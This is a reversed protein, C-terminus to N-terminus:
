KQYLIVAAGSENTNPNYFTRVCSKFLGNRAKRTEDENIKNMAIWGSEPFQGTQEIQECINTKAIIDFPVKGLFENLPAGVTDAITGSAVPCNIVSKGDGSTFIFIRRLASLPMNSAFQPNTPTWSNMVQEKKLTDIKELAKDRVYESLDDTSIKRLFTEDTIMEIAYARTNVELDNMAIKKLFNEDTIRKVAIWRIEQDSSNSVIEELFVENNTTEVEKMLNDRESAIITFKKLFTEDTIKGVASMRVNWYYADNLTIKKLFEEDTIKNIAEICASSFDPYKLVIEKLFNEDTINKVATLRVWFHSDNLAIEKLFVEDTINEVAAKRVLNEPDNLAVKKLFTEDTIDSVASM